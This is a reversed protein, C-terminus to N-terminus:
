FNILNAYMWLAWDQDNAYCDYGNGLAGNVTLPFVYACHARGDAEFLSLPSSLSAEARRHYSEDGSIRYWKEFAEGTLGSWYHPFTDGYQRYKGFWYGDWHRIATENRHYDPQRGNFLELIDLQKKGAEKYKEEGTVLYMELLLNAAPAVISQEYNVEHAPYNLGNAMIAGCHERFCKMLSEEEESLGAEKLLTLIEYLPVEIAYFHAGGQRYFSLLIRVAKQLYSTEGELRYMELYFDAAWPYNYLRKYSDDYGYDNTVLDTKADYLEREFFRFYLDLSKRAKEDPHKQLYRAMLMGMCVRERGANYDYEKSYYPHEEENDYVLYDGYLPSSEELCQQKEVLFRVRAKLLEEFPPVVNVRVFTEVGNACIPYVREGITDAPEEKWLQGNVSIQITEGQFLVYKEARVDIFGPFLKPLKAYFDDMGQHWFLKWEITFSEGPQLVQPAPHLIFDGRDNSMRALDREVSYATLSGKTLVLGLHPGEGNMRLAAVYSVQGGCFIHTHCRQTLCTAAETYEDNFTTYIGIDGAKTYIIKDTINTFVFRETLVDKEKFSSYAYGIGEPCHVTGWEKAGAVWNMQYPDKEAILEKM